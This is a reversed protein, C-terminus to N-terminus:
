WRFLTSGLSGPDTIPTAHRWRSCTSVRDTVAHEQLHRSTVRLSLCPGADDNRHRLRRARVQCPINV